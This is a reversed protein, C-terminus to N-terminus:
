IYILILGSLFFDGENFDFNKRIFFISEGMFKIFFNSKVMFVVVGLRVRGVKNKVLCRNVEKVFM